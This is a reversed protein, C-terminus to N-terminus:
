IDSCIRLSNYRVRNNWADGIIVLRSGNSTVEISHHNDTHGPSPIFRVGPLVTAFSDVLVLKDAIASIVM